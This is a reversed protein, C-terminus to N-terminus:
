NRRYCKKDSSQNKQNRHNDGDQAGYFEFGTPMIQYLEKRIIVNIAM